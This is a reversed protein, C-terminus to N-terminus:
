HQQPTIPEDRFFREDTELADELSMAIFPELAGEGNRVMYFVTLDGLDSKVNNAWGCSSILVDDDLVYESPLEHGLVPEIVRVRKAWQGTEAPFGEISQTQTVEGVFVTDILGNEYWNELRESIPISVRCAQASAPVALLLM